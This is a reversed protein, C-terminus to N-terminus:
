GPYMVGEEGERVWLVQRSFLLELLEGIKVLPIVEGRIRMKLHLTGVLSAPYMASAPYMVSAPYVVSVTNSNRYVWMVDFHIGEYIFGGGEELHAPSGYLRSSIRHRQTEAAVEQRLVFVLSVGNVGEKRVGTLIAEMNPVCLGFMWPDIQLGIAAPSLGLRSTVSVGAFHIADEKGEKEKQCMVGRESLVREVTELWVDRRDVMEDDVLNLSIEDVYMWAGSSTIGAPATGLLLIQQYEEKTFQPAHTFGFEENAVAIINDLGAESTINFGQLLGLPPPVRALDIGKFGVPVVRLKKQYAYGSEFYLWHSGLSSPTVFVVMLKARDLGLEVSRVWNRGLPISQGDSSLFVEITGGTKQVFLDKLRALAEKDKSSHSFFITPKEM